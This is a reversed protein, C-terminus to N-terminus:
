EKGKACEFIPKWGADPPCDLKGGGFMNNFFDPGPLNVGDPGVEIDSDNYPDTIKIIEGDMNSVGDVSFTGPVSIHEEKEHINVGVERDRFDGQRSLLTGPVEESGPCPRAHNTSGM